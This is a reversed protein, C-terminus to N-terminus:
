IRTGHRPRLPDRIRRVRSPTTLSVDELTSGRGCREGLRCRIIPSEMQLTISNKPTKSLFQKLSYLPKRARKPVCFEKQLSICVKDAVVFDCIYQRLALFYGAFKTRGLVAATPM